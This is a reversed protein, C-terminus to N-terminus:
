SVSVLFEGCWSGISLFSRAVGFWVFDLSFAM